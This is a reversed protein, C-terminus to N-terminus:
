RTSAPHTMPTTPAVGTGTTDDGFDWEYSVITGDVDFSGSGDFSVVSGVTGTYPGNPDAVPPDNVANVTITVLATACWPPTGTDCAEYTFSDEGFFDLAPTYTFSGDAHLSVTGNRGPVLSATLPDGDADSDNGLVGPATVVLM